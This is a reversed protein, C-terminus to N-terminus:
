IALDEALGADFGGDDVVQVADIVGAQGVAQSDGPRGIRGAQEFFDDLAAVQKAQM